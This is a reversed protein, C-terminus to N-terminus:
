VPSDVYDAIVGSEELRVLKPSVPHGAPGLTQHVGYALDDFVDGRRGDRM